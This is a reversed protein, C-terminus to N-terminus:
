VSLKEVIGKIRNVLPLLQEQHQKKTIRSYQFDMTACYAKVYYSGNGCGKNKQPSKLPCNMCDIGTSNRECFACFRAGTNVKDNNQADIFQKRSVRFIQRWHRLSVKAAELNGERAAQRVQERTIWNM